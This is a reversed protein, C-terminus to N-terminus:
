CAAAHITCRAQRAPGPTCVGASTSRPFVTSRPAQKSGHRHWNANTPRGDDGDVDCRRRLGGCRGPATVQAVARGGVPDDWRCRQGGDPPQAEEAFPPLTKQRLGDIVAPWRVRWAPPAGTADVPRRSSGVSGSSTTPPPGADARWSRISPGGSSAHDPLASGVIMAEHTRQLLYAHSRLNTHGRAACRVRFREGNGRGEGILPQGV